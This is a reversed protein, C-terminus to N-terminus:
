SEVMAWCGWTDSMWRNLQTFLLAEPGSLGNAAFTELDFSGGELMCLRAFAMPLNSGARM